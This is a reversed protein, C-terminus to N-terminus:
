WKQLNVVSDWVVAVVYDFDSDPSSSVGTAEDISAEITSNSACEWIFTDIIDKRTPDAIVAEALNRRRQYGPTTSAENLVYVATKRVCAVVRGRFEESISAKYQGHYSM